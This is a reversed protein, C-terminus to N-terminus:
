FILSAGKKHTNTRCAGVFVGGWVCLCALLGIIFVRCFLWFVRCVHVYGMLGLLVFGVSRVVV